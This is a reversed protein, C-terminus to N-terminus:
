YIKYGIHLARSYKKYFGRIGTVIPMTPSCIDVATLNVFIYILLDCIYEAYLLLIPGRSEVLTITLRYVIM